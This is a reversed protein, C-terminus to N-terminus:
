DTGGKYVTLVLFRNENVFRGVVAVPSVQNEATGEVVFRTGRPDDKHLRSVRGTLVAHEVDSLDLGDEAMEEMAHATM